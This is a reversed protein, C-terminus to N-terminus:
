QGTAALFDKLPATNFMGATYEITTPLIMVNVYGSSQDRFFDALTGVGSPGPISVYNSALYPTGFLLGQPRGIGM